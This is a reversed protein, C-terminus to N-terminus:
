LLSVRVLSQEAVQLHCSRLGGYRGSWLGARGQYHMSVKGGPVSM